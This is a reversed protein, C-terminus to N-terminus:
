PFDVGLEYLHDLDYAISFDTILENKKSLDTVLRTLQFEILEIIKPIVKHSLENAMPRFYFGDLTEKPQVYVRIPIEDSNSHGETMSVDQHAYCENRMQIIKQHAFELHPESFNSYSKPLSRFGNSSNFCRGYTTTVGAMMPSFLDSNTELGMKQMHQLLSICSQFCDSAMALRAIQKAIKLKQAHEM